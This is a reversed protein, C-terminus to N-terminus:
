KIWKNVLYQAASIDSEVVFPAVTGGNEQSPNVPFGHAVDILEILEVQHSDGWYTHSVGSQKETKAKDAVKHLVSWQQAMNHANQPHVITDKTGTFVVLQPWIVPAQNLSIVTEAQVKPSLGSGSKMCSIAKVLNDACPYGIGAIVSGAKFTSPYQSLLNSAMAGGASLGVIYVETSHLNSKLKNIMNIISLTEGNDKNQDLSSFWNFCGMANNSKLQQPVLLNFQYQGALNLMGTQRALTQGDQGCGHLFVVLRQNGGSHFYSATLEGPNDGFDLLDTFLLSETQGKTAKINEVSFVSFSGLTLSFVLTCLYPTISSLFSRNNNRM